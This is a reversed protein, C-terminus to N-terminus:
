PALGRLVTDVVLEIQGDTLPPRGPRTKGVVPAILMDAVLELDLGPRILGEAVGRALVRGFVVRRPGIARRWAEVALDPHAESEASLRGVLAAWPDAAGDGSRGTRRLLHLLDGRVSRGPPEPPPGKVATVAALLLEEKSPWRRYITTKAVGARAAVAEVSLGALGRSTFLEVTAALIAREAEASRPRGRTPATM